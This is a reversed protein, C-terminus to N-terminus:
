SGKDRKYYAEKTYPPNYLAIGLGSAEEKMGKAFVIAEDLTVPFWGPVIVQIASSLKISRIIRNLSIQPSVHSVGIQFPM